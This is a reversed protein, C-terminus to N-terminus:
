KFLIFSPYLNRLEEAEDDNLRPSISLKGFRSGEPLFEIYCHPPLKLAKNYKNKYITKLNEIYDTENLLGDIGINGEDKNNLNVIVHDPFWRQPGCEKERLMDYLMEGEPDLSKSYDKKTRYSIENIKVDEDDVKNIRAILYLIKSIEGCNITKYKHTNVILSRFYEFPQNVFRYYKERCKDLAQGSKESLEKLIKLQAKLKKLEYLNLEKDNYGSKKLLNQYEINDQKWCSPYPFTKYVFNNMRKAQKLNLQKGFFNPCYNTNVEM